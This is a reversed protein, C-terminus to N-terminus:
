SQGSAWRTLGYSGRGVRRFQPGRKLTVMVMTLQSARTRGNVVVGAALLADLLAAPSAPRQLRELTAELHEGYTAPRTEGTLIRTTLRAFRQLERRRQLHPALETDLTRLEDRVRALREALEARQENGM